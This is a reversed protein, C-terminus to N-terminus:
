AVEVFHAYRKNDRMYRNFDAQTGDGFNFSHRIREDTWLIGEEEAVARKLNGNYFERCIGKDIERFM